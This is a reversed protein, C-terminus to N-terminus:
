LEAFLQWGRFVLLTQVYSLSNKSTIVDRAGVGTPWDTVWQCKWIKKDPSECHTRLGYKWLQWIKQSIHCLTKWRPYWPSGKHSDGHAKTSAAQRYSMSRTWVFMSKLNSNGVFLQRIQISISRFTSESWWPFCSSQSLILLACVERKLNFINEIKLWPLYQESISWKWLLLSLAMLINRPLFTDRAPSGTRWIQLLSLSIVSKLCCCEKGNKVCLKSNGASKM